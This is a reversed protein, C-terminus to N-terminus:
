AHWPLESLSSDKQAQYSLQTGPCGQGRREQLQIKRPELVSCTRGVLDGMELAGSTVQAKIM